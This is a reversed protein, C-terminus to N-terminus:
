PCFTLKHSLHRENQRQWTMGGAKGGCEGNIILVWIQSLHLCHGEPTGPVRTIVQMLERQRSTAYFQAQLIPRLPHM